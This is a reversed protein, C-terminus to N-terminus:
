PPTLKVAEVTGGDLGFVYFNSDEEHEYTGTRTENLEASGMWHDSVELTYERSISVLGVHYRSWKFSKGARRRQPPAGTPHRLIYSTM